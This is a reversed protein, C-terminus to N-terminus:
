EVLRKSVWEFNERYWQVTKEIGDILKTEPSWGLLKHAKSSDLSQYKIEKQAELLNLIVPAKDDFEACIMTIVDLVRAPKNSGFNFVTESFPNMYKYQALSIYANVVDDIYLFDRHHGGDGRIVPSKGSLLDLITGPVLRSKHLDGGGYVNACRTISINLNNAYISGIMDGVTKSLEYHQKTGLLPSNERYPVEQRGYVKDTSALIITAPSDSLFAANLLNITAISNDSYALHPNSEASGVIPYAALHFVVDPMYGLLKKATFEKSLDGYVFEVNSLNVEREHELVVLRAGLNQLRKALANGIFGSAGTIAVVRDLWFM